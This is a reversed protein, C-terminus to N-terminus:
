GSPAALQESETACPSVDELLPKTTVGLHSAFLWDLRIGASPCFSATTFLAVDSFNLDPKVRFPVRSFSSVQFSSFGSGKRVRLLRPSSNNPHPPPPPSPPPLPALSALNSANSWGNDHSRRIVTFGM